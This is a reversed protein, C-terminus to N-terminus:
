HLACARRARLQPVRTRLGARILQLARQFAPLGLGYPDPVDVGAALREVKTAVSPFRRQVFRQQASDMTLVLDAERMMWRSLPRARHAGIDVGLQWMLEAAIPDAPAGDQACIGASFLEHMPLSQRLLGEAMPSRCVNGTCLLLINMTM